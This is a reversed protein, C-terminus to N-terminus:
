KGAKMIKNHVVRRVTITEETIEVTNLWIDTVDVGLAKSIIYAARLTPNASSKELNWMHAKSYACMECLDQLSYGREERLKKLNNHMFKLSKM